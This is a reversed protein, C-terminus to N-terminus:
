IAARLQICRLVMERSAPGHGRCEALRFVDKANRSVRRRRKTEPNDYREATLEAKIASLETDTKRTLDPLRTHRKQKEPLMKWEAVLEDCEQKIDWWLISVLTEMLDMVRDVRCVRSKALM